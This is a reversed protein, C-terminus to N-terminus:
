IPWNNNKINIAYKILLEKKMLFSNKFDMTM